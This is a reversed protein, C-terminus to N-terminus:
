LPCVVISDALRQTQATSLVVVISDVDNRLHADM